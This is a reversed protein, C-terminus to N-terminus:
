QAQNMMPNRDSGDATPRTSITRQVEIAEEIPEATSPTIPAIPRTRRSRQARVMAAIAAAAIVSVPTPAIAPIGASIPRTDLRLEGLFKLGNRM